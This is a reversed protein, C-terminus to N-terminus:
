NQAVAVQHAKRTNEIILDLRPHKCLFCYGFPVAYRCTSPGEHLCEAFESIGVDSVRCNEIGHQSDPKVKVVVKTMQIEGNFIPYFFSKLWRRETYFVGGMRAFHYYECNIQIIIRTM